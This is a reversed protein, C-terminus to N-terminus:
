EEQLKIVIKKGAGTGKRQLDVAEQVGEFGGKEVVEVKNPVVRGDELLQAIVRIYAALEDNLNPKKVAIQVSDPKGKLALLINYISVNSPREESTRHTKNSNKIPTQKRM